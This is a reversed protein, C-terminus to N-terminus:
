EQQSIQVLFNLNDTIIKVKNIVSISVMIKTKLVKFHFNHYCMLAVSSPIIFIRGMTKDCVALCM